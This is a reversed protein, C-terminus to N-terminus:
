KKWGFQDNNKNDPQSQQNTTTPETHKGNQTHEPPTPQYVLDRHNPYIPDQMPPGSAGFLIVVLPSLIAVALDPSIAFIIRVFQLHDGLAQEAVSSERSLEYRLEKELERMHVRQERERAFLSQKNSASLGYQNMRSLINDLEAKASVYDPHKQVANAHSIQEGASFGLYTLSVSATFFVLAAFRMIWQWTRTIGSQQIVSYASLLGAFLTISLSIFCQWADSSDFVQHLGMWNGRISFVASLLLSAVVFGRM